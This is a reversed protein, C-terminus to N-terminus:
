PASHEAAIADSDSIRARRASFRHGLAMCPKEILFWSLIALATTIALPILTTDIYPNISTIPRHKAYWFLVPWHWIYLGYSVIGFTWLGRFSLVKDVIGNSGVTAAFLFAAAIGWYLPNRVVLQSQSYTSTVPDTNLFLACFLYTLLVFALLLWSHETLWKVKPPMGREAVQVTLVAILMGIAFYDLNAPLTALWPDSAPVTHDALVGTWALVFKYLVSAAFLGVLAVYHLRLPDTTRIRRVFWAWFPLFIYFSLELGLTWAPAIGQKEYALYEFSQTFGFYTLLGHGEFVYNWSLAIAAIGLAVWYAPVIRLFRRVAYPITAPPAVGRLDARVYPRYLLFGTITIFLIVAVELPQQWERIKAGAQLGGSFTLAHIEFVALAAIARVSDIKSERRQATPQAM